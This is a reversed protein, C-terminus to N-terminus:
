APSATPEKPIVMGYGELTARAWRHADATYSAANFDGLDVITFAFRGTSAARGPFPPASWGASRPHAKRLGEGVAAPDDGCLVIRALMLWARELTSTIHQSPHQLAFCSFALGHLRGWPPQRSHDLALLQEFRDNCSPPDGRKGEAGCDACPIAGPGATPLAEAAPRHGPVGPEPQPMSFTLKSVRSNSPIDEFDSGCTPALHSPRFRSRPTSPPNLHYTSRRSARRAAASM